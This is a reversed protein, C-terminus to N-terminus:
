KQISLLGLNGTKQSMFMVDLGNEKFLANLSSKCRTSPVLMLRFSSMWNAVLVVSNFKTWDVLNIAFFTLISVVFFRIVALPSRM